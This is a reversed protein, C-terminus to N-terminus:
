SPCTVAGAYERTARSNRARGLHHWAQGGNGTERKMLLSSFRGAIELASGAVIFATFSWTKKWVGIVLQLMMIVGFAVAIFINLAKNPYYGLTTAEVPCLASVETCTYSM